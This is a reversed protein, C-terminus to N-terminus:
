AGVGAYVVGLFKQRGDIRLSVQLEAVGDGDTFVAPRDFANFVDRDAFFHRRPQGVAFDARAHFARKASSM